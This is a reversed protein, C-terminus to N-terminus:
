RPPRAHHITLFHQLLPRPITAIVMTSGPKSTTTLQGGAEEVRTKMNRLGAGRVRNDTMCNTDFGIGNDWVTLRVGRRNGILRVMARSARSHRKVNSLCEQAVRYFVLRVDVPLGEVPGRSRFRISTTGNEMNPVLRRLSAALGMERLIPPHLGHAIERVEGLAESLNEELHQFTSQATIYAPPTKTMYIIGSEVQLRVAVLRQCISDHLESSLRAREQEQAEYRGRVNLM